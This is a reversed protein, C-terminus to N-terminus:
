KKTQGCSCKYYDVVKEDWAAKDTVTRTKKVDKYGTKQVDKYGTKQVDKYGTKTEYGTATYPSQHTTWCYGAQLTSWVANVEEETDYYGYVGGYSLGTKSTKNKNCWYLEYDDKYKTYTYSEQYTYPEKETYTYPEKETYTYPEKETYTEQHTVADHHVTKYVAQWNHTHAPQTTKAVETPKTTPKETPKTVPQTQKETPKVTEAPKATVAPIVTTNGQTDTKKVETVGEKDTIIEVKNGEDDKGTIVTNGADDKKVETEKIEQAQAESKAIEEKKKIDEVVEKVEKEIVEAIREDTDKAHEVFTERKEFANDYTEKDYETVIYEVDEQALKAVDIIKEETPVIAPTDNNATTEENTATDSAEEKKEAIEQVVIKNDKYILNQNETNINVDSVKVMGEKDRIVKEKPTNVIVKDAEEKDTLSTTETGATDSEKVADGETSDNGEKAANDNKVYEVFTGDTFYETIKNNEVKTDVLAEEKALKELIATDDPIATTTEIAVEDEKKEGGFMGCGAFAVISAAAIGTVLIGILGKKYIKKKM